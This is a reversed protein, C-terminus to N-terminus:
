AITRELKTGCTRYVVSATKSDFAPEHETGCAMSPPGEWRGHFPGGEDPEVPRGEGSAVGDAPAVATGARHSIHAPTKPLIPPPSVVIEIELQTAKYVKIM